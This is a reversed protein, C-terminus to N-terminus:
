NRIERIRETYGRFRMMRSKIMKIHPSNGIKVFNPKFYVMPFSRSWISKLKRCDTILFWLLETLVTVLSRVLRSPNSEQRSCPDKRNAVADV